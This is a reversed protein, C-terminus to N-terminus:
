TSASLRLYATVRVEIWPDRGLLELTARSTNRHQAVRLRVSEDKDLALLDLLDPTLRRKMAVMFRTQPDGEYILKELISIPITKNQAVNVREDPFRTIIDLWVDEPAGDLAARRYDQPSSSELLQIFEEASKIM